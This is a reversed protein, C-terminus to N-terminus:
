TTARLDPTPVCCSARARGAHASVASGEIAGAAADNAASRLKVLLHRRCFVYFPMSILFSRSPLGRTRRWACRLRAPLAHSGLVDGTVRRRPRVSRSGSNSEDFTSARSGRRSPRRIEWEPETFELTPIQTSSRRERRMTGMSPVREPDGRPRKARAPQPFQRELEM